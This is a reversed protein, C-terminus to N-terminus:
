VNTSNGGSKSNDYSVESSALITASYVGIGGLILGGLLFSILSKYNNKLMRKM